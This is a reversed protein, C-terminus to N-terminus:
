FNRRVSIKILSRDRNSTGYREKIVRFEGRVILKRIRWDANMSIIKTRRTISGGTDEEDSVDATFIFRNWPRFRFQVSQRTLAVDESTNYYDVVVRRDSLRATGNFFRFQIYSNLAERTYSIEAGDEDEYVAEGGLIVTEYLPYDFDAGVQTNTSKDLPISSTGSNVDVNSDRWRVYFNSYQYLNLNAQYSQIYRSYAVTGGPDYDYDMRTTIDGDTSGNCNEVQTRTGVSRVLIDISVVCGTEIGVTLEIEGGGNLIRFVRITNSIINDHSLFQATVGTFNVQLNRVPVNMTTERDFKDYNWGASLSLSGFNYNKKHNINGAVGYSSANLGTTENDEGHLDANINTKDSVKYRFGTSGNYNITEVAVQKSNLYGLRYFSELDDSHTWRLAPTYRFEKFPRVNSQEVYSLINRFTFQSKDGMFVRSNFSTTETKINSTAISQSVLGSRSMVDISNYVIQGYGDKGMPIDARVFKQETTDNIRISFGEGQTKHQSAGISLKFPLVPEKLKFNFGYKESEQRFRDTLTLSVSPHDKEYFLLLPYPKEELFRLRALLNYEASDDSVNGSNTELDNQTFLPGFGLEMNLFNPHYIYGRTLLFIQEDISTRKETSSSSGQKITQDDERYRLEVYGEVDTFKIAAIEDEAHVSIYIGSTVFLCCSVFANLALCRKWICNRKAWMKKALQRAENNPM